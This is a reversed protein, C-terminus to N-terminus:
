AHIFFQDLMRAIARCGCANIYKAIALDCDSWEYKIFNRKETFEINYSYMFLSLMYKIRRCM